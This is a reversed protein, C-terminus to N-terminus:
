PEFQKRIEESPESWGFRAYYSWSGYAVTAINVALHNHEFIRRSEVWNRDLAERMRAKMEPSLRGGGSEQHERELRYFATYADTYELGDRLFAVRRKADPEDRTAEAAEDLITRLEDVVERTYPTVIRLQGAAIQDTIQEVRLFYRKVAEAGSEFGARCYDDLIADVDQDPDWLLRELVYYNLGQTAWNHCCSDFDTGLMSHNAIQRFDEAMKHIYVALIGQRRGSLLLNSRLYLKQTAGAWGKWGVLGERRKEEDLYKIGVFRIAINPHLKERVPPAAYRGYADATLWADPHAEVVREAIRNWFHIYRDTLSARGDRDKADPPDLKRCEDCICFATQGGDNPGISVSKVDKDDLEEIKERAIAEILGANSVCLRARQPSESQDRTGDPQLAFWEPHEDKYKEWMHGFVHGSALRLTGGQRHWGFWGADQSVTTRAATNIRRYDEATMGIRAGGKAM